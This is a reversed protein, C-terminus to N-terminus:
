AWEAAPLTVEFDILAPTSETFIPLVVSPPLLQCIERSYLTRQYLNMSGAVGWMVAQLFSKIMYQQVQEEEMQIETNNENYELINSIARRVLAFTSELVRIRTFEM